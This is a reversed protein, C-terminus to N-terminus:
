GPADPRAIVYTVFRRLPHCEPYRPHDVENETRPRMGLRRMLGWSARNERATWAGIRACDTNAFGWEISAQAAERAYGRGWEAQAIRWGIELEDPGAAGAEGGCRLGCLGILPGDRKEVAWFCHGYRARHAVQADILADLAARTTVGGLHETMAPTNALAAFAPKDAERWPRLVLRATEIVGRRGARGQRVGAGPSPDARM